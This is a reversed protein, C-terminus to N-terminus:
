LDICPFLERMIRKANNCRLKVALIYLHIPNDRLRHIIYKISLSNLSTSSIHTNISSLKKSKFRSTLSLESNVMMIIHQDDMYQLIDIM